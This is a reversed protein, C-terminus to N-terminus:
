HLFFVNTSSWFLTITQFKRWLSVYRTKPTTPHLDAYSLGWGGTADDVAKAIPLLPGFSGTNIDEPRERKFIQELKVGAVENEGGSASTTEQLSLRTYTNILPSNRQHWRQTDTRLGFDTNYSRIRYQSSAFADISSISSITALLFCLSFM